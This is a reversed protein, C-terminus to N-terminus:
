SPLSRDEPARGSLLQKDLTPARGWPNRIARFIAAIGHLTEPIREPNSRFLATMGICLLVLLAVIMVAAIAMPVSELLDIILSLDVVPFSGEPFVAQTM